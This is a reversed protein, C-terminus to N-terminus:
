IDICYLLHMVALVVLVLHPSGAMVGQTEVAV